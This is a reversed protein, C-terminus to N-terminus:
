AVMVNALIIIKNTATIENSSESFVNESASDGFALIRTVIKLFESIFKALGTVKVRLGSVTCCARSWAIM